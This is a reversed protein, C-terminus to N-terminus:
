FSNVSFSIKRALSESRFKLHYLFLPPRSRCGPRAFYFSARFTVVCSQFSLSSPRSPWGRTVAARSPAPPPRLLLSLRAAERLSSRLRQSCRCRFRPMRCRARDPGSPPRPSPISRGCGSCRRRLDEDRHDDAQREDFRQGQVREHDCEEQLRLDLSKARRSNPVVPGGEPAGNGKRQPRAAGTGDRMSLPNPHPGIEMVVPKVATIFIRPALGKTRTLAERAFAMLGPQRM